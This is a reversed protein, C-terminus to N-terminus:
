PKRVSVPAEIVLKTCHFAEAYPARCEM